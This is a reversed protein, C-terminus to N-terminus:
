PTHGERSTALLICRELTKRVRSLATYIANDGRGQRVAIEKISLGQWYRLSLLDRQRQTLRELCGRLASHRDELAEAHEMQYDAIKEILSGDFRIQLSNNKRVYNMVEFRAITCIWRVLEEDPTAECYTFSDLKRWAVLYTAQLLEEVPESCSSTLAVIFSRVRREYRAILVVFQDQTLSKESV